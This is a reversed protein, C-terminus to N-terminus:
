MRFLRRLSSVNAEKAATRLGKSGDYFSFITQDVSGKMRLGLTFETNIDLEPTFVTLYGVYPWLVIVDWFTVGHNTLGKAGAPFLDYAPKAANSLSAQGPDNGWDAGCPPEINDSTRTGFDLPTKDSLIFPNDWAVYVLNGHAKGDDARGLGDYIGYKIWGETGTGVGASESQWAGHKKKEIVKPPMWGETWVGHCLGYSHLILSYDTNNSLTVRVSRKPM